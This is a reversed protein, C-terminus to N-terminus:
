LLSNGLPMLKLETGRNMELLLLQGCKLFEFCWYEIADFLRSLCMIAIRMRWRQHTLSVGVAYHCHAEDLVHEVQTIVLSHFLQCGDHILISSILNNLKVVFLRVDQCVYMHFHMSLIWKGPVDDLPSSWAERNRRCTSVRFSVSLLVDPYRYISVTMRRSSKVSDTAPSLPFWLRSVIRPAQSVSLIACAKLSSKSTQVAITEM